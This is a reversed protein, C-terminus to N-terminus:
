RPTFLRLVRWLSYVVTMYLLCNIAVSSVTILIGAPTSRWGNTLMIFSPWLFHRLNTHGFVLLGSFGYWLLALVICSVALGIAGGISLVFRTTM